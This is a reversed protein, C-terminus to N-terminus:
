LLFGVYKTNKNEDAVEPWQVLVHDCLRTAIRGSLSLSKTRCFSEVFITKSCILRGVLCFPICTGPGNCLVMKPRYKLCIFFSQILCIATTIISTLYSQGVKRSRTVRAIEGPSFENERLKKESHDDGDAIIFLAEYKNVLDISRILQLMEATHGGSGLVILLKIKNGKHHKLRSFFTRILTLVVILLIMLFFILQIVFFLLITLNM